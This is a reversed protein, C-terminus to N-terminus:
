RAGATGLVLQLLQVDVLGNAAETCRGPADANIADCVQQSDEVPVAVKPPAYTVSAVGTDPDISKTFAATIPPIMTIIDQLTAVNAGLFRVLPVTADLGRRLVSGYRVTIENFIPLFRFLSDLISIVPTFLENNVQDLVPAFRTLMSKIDGWGGATSAALDTLADVIDGIHGIAADPSALAVSLKKIIANIRPGLDTTSNNLAAIGGGIQNQHAPDDGNLEDALKNLADLTESISKPTLTNTICHDPDWHGAASRDGLVALDRDAVLTQAVTTAAADAPLRYRADVTFDVQVRTGQPAISTVTGVPTGLLTVHNGVYLGVSDPMVACYSMTRHIPHLVLLYAATIVATLVAVTTVSMFGRSALIRHWMLM